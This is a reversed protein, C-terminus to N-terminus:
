MTRSDSGTNGKFLLMEVHLDVNEAGIGTRGNWENLPTMTNSIEFVLQDNGKHLWEILLAIMAGNVECIRHVLEM